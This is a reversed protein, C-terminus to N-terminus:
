EGAGEEEDEEDSDVVEVWVTTGVFRALPRACVCEREEELEDLLSAVARAAAWRRM